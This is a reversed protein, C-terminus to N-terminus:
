DEKEEIPKPRVGNVFLWILVALGILFSAGISAYMTFHSQRVILVDTSFELAILLVVATALPSHRLLALM